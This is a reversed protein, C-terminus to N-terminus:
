KPHRRTGKCNCCEVFGNIGRPSVLAGTGRCVSCCDVIPVRAHEGVDVGGLWGVSRNCSVGPPSFCVACTESTDDAHTVRGGLVLAAIDLAVLPNRRLAAKLREKRNM